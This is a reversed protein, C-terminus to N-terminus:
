RSAPASRPASIASPSSARRLQRLARAPSRRAGDGQAHAGGGGSRHRRPRRRDHELHLQRAARQVAPLGARRGGAADPRHQRPPPRPRPADDADLTASVRRACSASLMRTVEGAIERRGLHGGAYQHTLETANAQLGHIWPQYAMVAKNYNFFWVPAEEYLIANAQRLLDIRKAADDDPRGRRGAQRLGSQQLRLLQLGHAADTSHFCKLAGALRARDPELPHLGPFRGQHVIDTLVTAEVLKLKVKIGVKALM